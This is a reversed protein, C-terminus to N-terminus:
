STSLHLLPHFPEGAKRIIDDEVDRVHNGFTKQLEKESYGEGLDKALAPHARVRDGLLPPTENQKFYNLFMQKRRSESEDRKQKKHKNDHHQLLNVQQQLQDKEGNLQHKEMSLQEKEGSLMEVTAGLSEM